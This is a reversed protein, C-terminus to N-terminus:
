LKNWKRMVTKIEDLYEKGHKELAPIMFARARMKKTGLELLRSYFTEKLVYLSGVLSKANTRSRIAKKLKKYKRKKPEAKRDPALVLATSRMNKLVKRNAKKIDAIMAKNKKDILLVLEETGDVKIHMKM